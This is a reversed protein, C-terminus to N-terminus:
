ESGAKPSNMYMDAKAQVMMMQAEPWTLSESYNDSDEFELGWTAQQRASREMKEACMRM